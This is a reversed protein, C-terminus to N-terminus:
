KQAELKLVIEVPLARPGRKNAPPPCEMGGILEPLPPALALDQGPHFSQAASVSTSQRTQLRCLSLNQYFEKWYLDVIFATCYSTLVQLITDKLKFPKHSVDISCYEGFM